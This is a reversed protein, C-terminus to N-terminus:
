NRLCIQQIRFFSNTPLSVGLPLSSSPRPLQWQRTLALSLVGNRGVPQPNCCPEFNVLFLMSCCSFLCLYYALYDSHFLSVGPGTLICCGHIGNPLHVAQAEGCPSSSKSRGRFFKLSPVATHLNQPMSKWPVAQRLDLSHKLPWHQIGSPKWSESCRRTRQKLYLIVSMMVVPGSRHNHLHTSHSPFSAYVVPFWCM